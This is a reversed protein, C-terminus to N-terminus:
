AAHPLSILLVKYLSLRELPLRFAAVSELNNVKTHAVTGFLGGYLFRIFHISFPM